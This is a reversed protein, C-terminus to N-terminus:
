GSDSQLSAVPGQTVLEGTESRAELRLDQSLYPEAGLMDTTSATSDLWTNTSLWRGSGQARRQVRLTVGAQPTWQLRIALGHASPAWVVTDIPIAPPPPELASGSVLESPASRHDNLDVAVLRYYHTLKPPVADDIEWRRDVNAVATPSVMGAPPPLTADRAIRLLLTMTRIDRAANADTTRYLRYHDFSAETNAVWRLTIKRSGGAAELLTPRAPVVINPVYV